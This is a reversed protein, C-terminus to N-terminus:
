QCVGNSQQLRKALQAVEVFQCESAQALINAAWVALHPSLRYYVWKGERRDLLVGSERLMALHRSIKPQAEQIATTIDCVCLEGTERLLLLISLRTEDSLLKFFQLPTLQPM